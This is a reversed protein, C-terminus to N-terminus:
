NNAEFFELLLKTKQISLLQSANQFTEFDKATDKLRNPEYFLVDSRALAHAISYYLPLNQTSNTSCVKPKDLTYHRLQDDSFQGESPQVDGNNIAWFSIMRFEDEACMMEPRNYEIRPNGGNLKKMNAYYDSLVKYAIPPAMTDHVTGKPRAVKTEYTSMLQVYAEKQSNQSCISRMSPQLKECIEFLGKYPHDKVDSLNPKLLVYFSAFVDYSLQSQIIVKTEDDAAQYMAVLLNVYTQEYKQKNKVAADYFMRHTDESSTIKKKRKIYKEKDEEPDLSTPPNPLVNSLQLMSISARYEKPLNENLSKLNKSSISAVKGQVVSIAGNQLENVDTYYGILVCAQITRICEEITEDNESMKQLISTLNQDPILITVETGAKPVFLHGICLRKVLDYFEKNISHVLALVNLQSKAKTAM